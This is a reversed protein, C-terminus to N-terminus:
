VTIENLYVQLPILEKLMDFAMDLIQSTYIAPGTEGHATVGVNKRMYWDMIVDSHEMDGMNKKYFDGYLM